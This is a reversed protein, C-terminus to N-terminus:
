FAATGYPGFGTFTQMMNKVHKQEKAQRGAYGLLFVEAVIWQAFRFLCFLLISSVWFRFILQTTIQESWRIYEFSQYRSVSPRTQIHESSYLLQKPNRSLLICLVATKQVPKSGEFYNERQLSDSTSAQM